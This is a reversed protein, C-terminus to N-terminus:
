RRGAVRLVEQDPDRTEAHPQDPDLAHDLSPDKEIMQDLDLAPDPGPDQDPSTKRSLSAELDLGQDGTRLSPDLGQNGKERPQDAEQDLSLDVETGQSPDPDLSPIGEKPDLGLSPTEEKPDQSPTRAGPDPGARPIRGRPDPALGEQSPDPAPNPIRGELSPDLALSPDRQSPDHGGAHHLGAGPDEEGAEARRKLLRFFLFYTLFKWFLM